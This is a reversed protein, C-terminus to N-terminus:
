VPTVGRMVEDTIFKKIHDRDDNSISVFQLGMGPKYHPGQGPLCSYAVTAAASIVKNKINVKVDFETRLPAPETTWLFMGSESIDLAHSDIHLKAANNIATVPQITRIRITNRPYLEVAHQVSRYLIEACVPKLLCDNAGAKLCEQEGVVDDADRLVIIPINTTKESKRILRILELVSADPFTMASLILSSMKIMSFTLAERVTRSTHVRYGFKQLIISTYFLSAADSDVILLSKEGNQPTDTSFISSHSM